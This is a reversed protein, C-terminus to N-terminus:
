APMLHEGGPQPVDCGLKRATDIWLQMANQINGSPTERVTGQEM